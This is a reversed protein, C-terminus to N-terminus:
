FRLFRRRGNAFIDISGSDRDRWTSYLAQIANVDRINNASVDLYQLHPLRTRDCYAEAARDTILNNVMSLRRLTSAFPAHLIALAADDDITSEDLILAQLAPFSGVTAANTTMRQVSESSVHCCSLDIHELRPWCISSLHVLARGDLQGCKSLYLVRLSDAFSPRTGVLVEFGRGTLQGAASIDLVDLCPARLSVFLIVLVTDSLISSPLKLESLCPYEASCLLEMTDLGLWVGNASLDLHVVHSVNPHAFNPHRRGLLQCLWPTMFSNTCAISRLQVMSEVIASTNPDNRVDDVPHRLFVHSIDLSSINPFYSM